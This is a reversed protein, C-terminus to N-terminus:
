EGVLNSTCHIENRLATVEQKERQARSVHLQKFELVLSRLCLVPHYRVWLAFLDALTKSLDKYICVPM